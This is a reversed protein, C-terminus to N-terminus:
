FIDALTIEKTKKQTSVTAIDFFSGCANAGGLCGGAVEGVDQIGDVSGSWRM